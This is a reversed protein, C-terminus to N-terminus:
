FILHAAYVAPRCDIMQDDHRGSLRFGISLRVFYLNAGESSSRAHWSWSAENQVSICAHQPHRVDSYRTMAEIRDWGFLDQM